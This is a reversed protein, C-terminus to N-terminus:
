SDENPGSSGGQVSVWTESNVTDDMMKGVAIDCVATNDNLSDIMNIDYYVYNQRLMGAVDYKQRENVILKNWAHFYQNKIQSASKEGIGSFQSFDGILKVHTFDVGLWSVKTNHTFVFDPHNKQAHAFAAYFVILLILTQKM